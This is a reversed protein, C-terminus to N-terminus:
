EKPFSVSRPWGDLIFDGIGMKSELKALQITIYRYNYGLALSYIAGILLVFIIGVTGIAFVDYGIRHSNRLLWIYGALSPGLIALYRIIDQERQRLAELFLKHMDALVIYRIKEEQTQENLETM